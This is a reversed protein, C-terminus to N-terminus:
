QIDKEPMPNLGFTVAYSISYVDPVARLGSTLQTINQEVSYLVFKHKILVWPMFCMYVPAYFASM